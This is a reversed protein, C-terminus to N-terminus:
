FEGAIGVSSLRADSGPFDDEDYQKKLPINSPSNKLAESIDVM